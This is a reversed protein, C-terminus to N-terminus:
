KVQSGKGSKKVKRKYHFPFLCWELSLPFPFGHPAEAFSLRSFHVVMLFVKMTPSCPCLSPSAMPVLTFCQPFTLRSCLVLPSLAGPWPFAQLPAEAPKMVWVVGPSLPLSVPRNRPINRHSWRFGPSAASPRPAQGMAQVGASCKGLFITSVMSCM